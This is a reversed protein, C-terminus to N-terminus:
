GGSSANIVLETGAASCLSGLNSGLRAFEDTSPDFIAGDPTPTSSDIYAIVAHIGTELESGPEVPVTRYGVSAEELLQNRAEAGINGKRLENFANFAASEPISLELCTERATVGDAESSTSEPDRAPETQEARDWLGGACATLAVTTSFVVAISLLRMTLSSSNTM